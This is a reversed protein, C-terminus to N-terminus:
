RRPESVTWGGDVVVVQGTIMRADDSLLHLAVDTVADVDIPGHALPQKDALYALIAEDAQARRSMPTAVLSPAIANIRIGQPAYFAAAARTLGDIAGKSAAYGHTAFFAPAPHAVLTSSMTLISGRLGNADAAQALMQRVAARVVLFQSTANAGMVAEWGDLTAEHLPGDGFRRGSIGAVSYVADLRPLARLAASFAEGVAGEDRVDASHTTCRGGAAGIVAALEALREPDRAIVFVHAGEAALAKAASGGMGTSGTVLVGRGAFRARASPRNAPDPSM